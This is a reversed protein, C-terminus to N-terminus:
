DKQKKKRKLFKPEYELGVLLINTLDPNNVNFENQRKYSLKVSLRKSIEREITIFWRQKWEGYDKYPRNSFYYEVGVSPDFPWDKDQYKVAVKHRHGMHNVMGDSSTYFNVFDNQWIGRYQWKLDGTKVQYKLYLSFRDIRRNYNPKEFDVTYRYIGGIDLNKIVEYGINFETQWSSLESSNEFLRLEPEISYNLKKTIEGKLTFNWWTVFDENQAKIPIVLM